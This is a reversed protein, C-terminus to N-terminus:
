AHSARKGEEGKQSAVMDLTLFPAPCGNGRFYSLISKKKEGQNIKPPPRLADKKEGLGIKMLTREGGEGALLPVGRKRSRREV